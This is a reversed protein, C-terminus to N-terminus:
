ATGGPPPPVQLTQGPALRWLDDIDNFEAIYHETDPTGHSRQAVMYLPETTGSGDDVLDQFRVDEPNVETPWEEPPPMVPETPPEPAIPQELARLMRLRLWSRRPTGSQAFYELREAVAVVVGPVNWSKGWVFRVLPPRGYEGERRNNEAMRWLPETLVQVSEPQPPQQVLSVDFLLDLLLETMGGGTFLLPSDAMGAGTLPGGTSLRPRVGAVRRMVVSAPNLLCPIREGSEEILFAAREM